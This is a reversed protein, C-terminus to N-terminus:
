RALAGPWIALIPAGLRQLALAPALTSGLPTHLGGSDLRELIDELRGEWGEHPYVLPTDEAPLGTQGAMASVAQAFSGIRDALGIEVARPGLYIRGDAYPRLTEATLAPRGALVDSLFQEYTQMAIDHLYDVEATTMRRFPNGTDKYEGTTITNAQVGIKEALGTADFMEM